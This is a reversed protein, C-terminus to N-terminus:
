KLSSYVIDPEPKFARKRKPTVAIQEYSVDETRVASYVVAPGPERMKSRNKNEKIIIRGYSINETRVASYDAAPASEKKQENPELQPNSINIDSYNIEDRVEDEAAEDQVAEPKRHVCRRVLLVLLVLLVVVCVSGIFSLVSLVAPSTSTPPPTSTPPSPTTPQAATTSRGACLGWRLQLDFIKEQCIGPLHEVDGNNLCSSGCHPQHRNYYHNWLLKLELSM